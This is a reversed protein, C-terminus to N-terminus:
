GTKHMENWILMVKELCDRPDEVAYLDLLGFLAPLSFGILAGDPRYVPQSEIIWYLRWADLNEPLLPETPQISAIDAESAGLDRLQAIKAEDPLTGM